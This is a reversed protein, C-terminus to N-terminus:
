LRSHIRAFNFLKCMIKKLAKKPNCLAEGFDSNIKEPRVKNKTVHKSYLIWWMKLMTFNSM